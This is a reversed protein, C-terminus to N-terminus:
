FNTYGQGATQQGIAQCENHYSIHVKLSSARISHSLDSSPGGFYCYCHKLNDVTSWLGLGVSCNISAAWIALPSLCWGSPLLPHALFWMAGTDCYQGKLSSGLVTVAPSSQSYQWGFLSCTHSTPHRQAHLGNLRAWILYCSLVPLLNLSIVRKM